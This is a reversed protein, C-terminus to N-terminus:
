SQTNRAAIHAQDYTDDVKVIIDDKESESWVTSGGGESITIKGASNNALVSIGDGPIFVDLLNSNKGILSINKNTTNTNWTYGNIVKVIASYVIGSLTQTNVFEVIQEAWLGDGPSAELRRAEIWFDEVDLTYNSGSVLTLDTLPITIVKTTWNVSYAM